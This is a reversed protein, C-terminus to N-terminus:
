RSGVFAMSCTSLLYGFRYTGGAAVRRGRVGDTGAEELKAVRHEARNNTTCQQVEPGEALEDLARVAVRVPGSM